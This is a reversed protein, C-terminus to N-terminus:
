YVDNYLEVPRRILRNGMHVKRHWTAFKGKVADESCGFCAFDGDPSTFRLKYWNDKIKTIM